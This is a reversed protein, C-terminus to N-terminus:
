VDNKSYSFIVRDIFPITEIKSQVYKKMEEFTTFTVLEENLDILKFVGLQELIDCKNIILDTVGNIYISKFLRKLNLWHCQRPRGTTAGFENGLKQLQKFVDDDPQFQKKGVYTEYIKAIGYVTEISQSPIAATCCFGAICNSSTVYPYDGWDIDLEFGQAGECLINLPKNQGRFLEYPDVVKCGCIFDNLDEVRTGRRNFKDRYTPRIGSLTSGVKDNSRDDEIHKQEIIHTNYSVYLIDTVNNIGVSELDSLEKKFKKIDLVCAPGILSPVGYVVGIPIQHLVIKTDNVYITHGANPGGNFRVCFDYRNTNNKLLWNIVKGKGEDGHQLGVIVDTNMYSEM